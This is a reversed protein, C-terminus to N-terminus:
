TVEPVSLGAGGGLSHSCSQPGSYPVTATVTIQPAWPCTWPHTHQQFWGPKLDGDGRWSCPGAGQRWSGLHSSRTSPFLGAPQHPSTRTAVPRSGPASLRCGSLHAPHDGPTQMWGAPPTNQTPHTHNHSIQTTHQGPLRTHPNHGPFRRQVGSCRGSPPAWIHLGLSVDTCLLSFHFHFVRPSSSM